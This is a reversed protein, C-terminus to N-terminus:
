ILLYSVVYLICVFCISPADLRESPACACCVCEISSLVHDIWHLEELVVVAGDCEVVFSCVCGFMNHITEGFFECDYMGMDRRETIALVSSFHRRGKVVAVM